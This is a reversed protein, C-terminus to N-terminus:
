YGYDPRSLRSRSSRTTADQRPRDYRLRSHIEAMILMAQDTSKRSPMGIEIRTRNTRQGEVLIRYEDGIASRVEFRGDINTTSRSLVRLRLADVTEDVVGVVSGPPYDFNQGIAHRFKEDTHFTECAPLTLVLGLLLPALGLIPTPRRPTTRATTVDGQPPLHRDRPHMPSPTATPHRATTM